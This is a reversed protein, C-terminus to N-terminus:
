LFLNNIVILTFQWRKFDSALKKIESAKEWLLKTSHPSYTIIAQFHLSNWHLAFQANIVKWFLQLFTNMCILM